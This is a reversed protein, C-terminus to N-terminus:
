TYTRPLARGTLQLARGTLQLARGTRPLPRGTHQLTCSHAALACSHAHTRLRDALTHMHARGNRSHAHTRLRHAPTDRLARSPAASARHQRHTLARGANPLSRQTSIIDSPYLLHFESLSHYIPNGLHTLQVRPPDHYLIFTHRRRCSRETTLVSNIKAKNNKKM